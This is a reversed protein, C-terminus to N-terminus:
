DEHPETEEEKWCRIFHPLSSSGSSILHLQTNIPSGQTDLILIHDEWVCFGEEEESDEEWFGDM